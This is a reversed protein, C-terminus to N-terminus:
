GGQGGQMGGGGQGQGGQDQGGQGQGGQGQGGQGQGGQGQDQYTQQPQPRLFNQYVLVGIVIALAGMVLPNKAMSKMKDGQGEAPAAPAGPPQQYYGPPPPQPPAYTQASPHYNPAAPAQPAQPAAGVALSDGAWGGAAPAPTPAIHPAPAANLPGIRRAVVVAATASIMSIRERAAIESAIAAADGEPNASAAIRAAASTEFAAALARIEAHLDPAQSNLRPMFQGPTLLFADGGQQRSQLALAYLRDEVSM